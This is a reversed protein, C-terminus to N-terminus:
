RSCIEKRVDGAPHNYAIFLIYIPHLGLLLVIDLASLICLLLPFYDGAYKLHFAASRWHTRLHTGAHKIAWDSRCGQISIRPPLLRPNELNVPQCNFFSDINRKENQLYVKLLLM